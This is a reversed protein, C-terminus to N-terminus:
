RRAPMACIRNFVVRMASSRASLTTLGAYHWAVTRRAHSRPALSAENICIPVTSVLRVAGTSVPPWVILQSFVFRSM